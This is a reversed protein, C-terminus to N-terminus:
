IEKWEKEMKYDLFAVYQKNTIKYKIGSKKDRMIIQITGAPTATRKYLEVDTSGNDPCSFKEGGHLVGFHVRHGFFKRLRIYLEETAAIDGVNYAVMKELYEEQEEKTGTQIMNWMHIGEHGQKHVVNSYKAMYAMSYSPVRFAKKEEKMIDYSRVFMNVDLNYKMARANIWRNDFRDNNYGIVMDAKNYVKLFEKMLDEDCHNEDWTLHEVSNAGLWKWSVTIIKPEDILQHHGIYQKGTWWVWARTRSTEIDYILIKSPNLINKALVGVELKKAWARITRPVVKFHDALKIQVDERNEDKKDCLEYARIIMDKDSLSLDKFKM